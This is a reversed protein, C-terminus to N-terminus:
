IRWQGVLVDHEGNGSRKVLFCALKRHLSRAVCAEFFESEYFFRCGCKIRPDRIMERLRLLAKEIPLEHQYAIHAAAGAVERQDPNMAVAVHDFERPRRNALM